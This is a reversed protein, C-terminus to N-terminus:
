IHILSLRLEGEGVRRDLLRGHPDTLVVGVATGSLQEELHDLVPRASSVLSGGFDLDTMYPVAFRSADVGARRSREWSDVIEPRVGPCRASPVGDAPSGADGQVAGGLFRERARALGSGPGSM